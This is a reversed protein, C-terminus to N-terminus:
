FMTSFVMWRPPLTPIFKVVRKEEDLEVKEYAEEKPKEEPPPVFGVSEAKGLPRSSKKQVGHPEAQSAESGVAEPTGSTVRAVTSGSETQNNSSFTIPRASEGDSEDRSVPKDSPPELNGAFKNVGPHALSLLFSAVLLIWCWGISM